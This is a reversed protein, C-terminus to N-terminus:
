RTAAGGMVAGSTFDAGTALLVSIEDSFIILLAAALGAIVALISEAPGPRHGATMGSYVSGVTALALLVGNRIVQQSSLPESSAGFCHCPERSGSRVVLYLGVTLAFTLVAGLILGALPVAAVLAVVATEATVLALPMGKLRLPRFPMAALWARLSQWAAPSRVKSAVSVAFVTGFLCRCAITCDYAWSM